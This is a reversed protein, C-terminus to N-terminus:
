VGKKKLLFDIHLLSSQIPPWFQLGIQFGERKNEGSPETWVVKSNVIIINPPHFLRVQLPTGISLPDSTLIMMGGGGLTQIRSSHREKEREPPQLFAYDGKMELNVRPHKRKLRIPEKRAIM